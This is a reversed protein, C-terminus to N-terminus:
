GASLLHLVGTHLHVGAGELVVHLVPIQSRLDFFVDLGRHAGHASVVERLLHLVGDGAAVRVTDGDAPAQYGIGKQGLFDYLPPLILDRGAQAARVTHAGHDGEPSHPARDVGDDAPLAVKEVGQGDIAPPPNENGPAARRSHLRGENRRLLAVAHHQALRPILQAARQLEGIIAGGVLQGHFAIPVALDALHQSM